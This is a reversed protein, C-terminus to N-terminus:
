KQEQRDEPGGWTLMHRFIGLILANECPNKGIRVEPPFIQFGLISIFIMQFEQFFTYLIKGRRRMNKVM